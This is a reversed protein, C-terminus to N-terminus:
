AIVENEKATDTPAMSLLVDDEKKEKRWKVVGIICLTLFVGYLLATLTLGKYFYLPISIVDVVIWVYWSEIIKKTQGYTALMSLTLISADFWYVNSKTEAHLLHAVVVTAIITLAGSIVIERVYTNRVKLTNKGQKGGFTWVYIGYFSMVLFVVQLLTDAYLGVGFFLFVFAAANAAGVYWNWKYQKAVAWVTLGGTIFGFLELLTVPAGFATFAVINFVHLLENM